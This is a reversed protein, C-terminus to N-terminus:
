STDPGRRANTVDSTPVADFGSVIAEQAAMKAAALVRVPVDALAAAMSTTPTARPLAAQIVASALPIATTRRAAPGRAIRMASAIAPRPRSPKPPRSAYLATCSRQDLKAVMLPRWAPDVM